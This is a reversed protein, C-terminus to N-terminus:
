SLRSRQQLWIWHASPCVRREWAAVVIEIIHDHVVQEALGLIAGEMLQTGPKAVAVYYVKRRIFLNGFNLNPVDLKAHRSILIPSTWSPTACASASCLQARGMMLPLQTKDFLCGMSNTLCIRAKYKHFTKTSQIRGSSNEQEREKEM